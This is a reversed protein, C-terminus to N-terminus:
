QAGAKDNELAKVDEQVDATTKPLSYEDASEQSAAGCLRHLPWEYYSRWLGLVPGIALLALANGPDWGAKLLAGVMQISVVTISFGICTTLTLATGVLSRRAYDACLSSFQGSDAVVASGWVLLYFLFVGQSMYQYSPALLCCVLSVLLAVEAVVASGPHVGRGASLSWIGGLTCSVAGVAITAFSTLAVNGLVVGDHELAHSEILAPAYAWFAYLEWMHGFYGIAAARFRSDEMIARLAEMGMLQQPQQQKSGEETNLDPPVKNNSDVPNQSEHDAIASEEQVIADEQQEEEDEKAQCGAAPALVSISSTEGKTLHHDTSKNEEEESMNNKDIEKDRCCGCCNLLRGLCAAGPGGQRPIMVVAMTMAGVVALISVAALTAAFPMSSEEGIGSVLWPFATGLTLAGVLVGLRAGLGSPYEMAAIKMGVPYVGALCFGVLLRLVAWAAFNTTSVCVVNLAAGVLTMATFLVPPSIRDTAAFYTLTLTGLIFGVQVCSVLASVEAEGFGDIQSVVANPAFWLSTGAFQAFVITPLVLWDLCAM